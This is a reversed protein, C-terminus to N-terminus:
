LVVLAMWSRDSRTPAVRSVFPSRTYVVYFRLSFMRISCESIKPNMLCTLLTSLELCLSERALSPASTLLRPLTLTLLFTWIKTVFLWHWIVDTTRLANVSNSTKATLNSTPSVLVLWWKFRWIMTCSLRDMTLNSNWLLLPLSIKLKRTLSDVKLNHCLLLPSIKIRLSM